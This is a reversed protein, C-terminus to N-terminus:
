FTQKSTPIQVMSSAFLVLGWSFTFYFKFVLNLVPKEQGWYNCTKFVFSKLMSGDM